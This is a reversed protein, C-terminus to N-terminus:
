DETEFKIGLQRAAEQMAKLSPDNLDLGKDPFTEM